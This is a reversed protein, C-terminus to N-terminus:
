GSWVYEAHEPKLCSPARLGKSPSYSYNSTTVYLCSKNNNEKNMEISASMIKTLTKGHFHHYIM